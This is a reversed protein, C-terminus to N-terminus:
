TSLPSPGVRVTLDRPPVRSSCIPPGIRAAELARVAVLSSPVIFHGDEQAVARGADEEGAVGFGLSSSYM